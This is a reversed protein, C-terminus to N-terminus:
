QGVADRSLPPLEIRQVRRGSLDGLLRRLPHGGDLPDDRTSLVMMSPLDGIRRSVFRVVDLTADDAWHLDELVMVTPSALMRLRAGVRGQVPGAELAARLDADRSAMDRFPGLSRPALLDDCGGRAVVVDGPIAGLFAGLLSTKGGGAEGAVLAVRGGRGL